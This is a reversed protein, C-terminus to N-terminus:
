GEVVIVSNRTGYDNTHTDANTQDTAWQGDIYFKYEYTGPPLIVTKEWCGDEVMKMPHKKPNWSNFDGVLAAHQNHPAELRFRVRRKRQKVAALNKM